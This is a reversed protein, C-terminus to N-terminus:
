LFIIQFISPSVHVHASVFNIVERLYNKFLVASIKQINWNIYRRGNIVLYKGHLGDSYTENYDSIPIEAIFIM